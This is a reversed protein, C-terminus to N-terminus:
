NKKNLISSPGLAEMGGQRQSVATTAVAAATPARSQGVCSVTTEKRVYIYYNKHWNLLLLKGM